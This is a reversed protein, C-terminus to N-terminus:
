SVEKEDDLNRYRNTIPEYQLVGCQPTWELTVKRDHKTHYQWTDEDQSQFM